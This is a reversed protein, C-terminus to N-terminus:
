RFKRFRSAARAPGRGAFGARGASNQNDDTAAARACVRSTSGAPINGRGPGRRRQRFRDPGTSVRAATRRGLFRNEQRLQRQGGLAIEGTLM